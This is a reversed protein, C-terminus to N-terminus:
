PLVSCISETVAEVVNISLLDILYKKGLKGTAKILMEKIGFLMVRVTCGMKPKNGASKVKKTL